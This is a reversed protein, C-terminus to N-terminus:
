IGLLILKGFSSWLYSHKRIIYPTWDSNNDVRTPTNKDTDTGDGLQGYGNYGWCYLRGNDRIGCTHREGLSIHTWDSVIGM